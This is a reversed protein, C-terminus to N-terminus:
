KPKALTEKHNLRWKGDPNLYQWVDERLTEEGPKRYRIHFYAASGDGEGVGVSEVQFSPNERLFEARVYDDSPPMSCSTCAILFLGAAAITRWSYIGTIM